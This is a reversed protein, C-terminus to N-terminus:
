RTETIEPGRAPRKRRRGGAQRGDAQQAAEAEAQQEAQREVIEEPLQLPLPDRVPMAEDGRAVVTGRVSAALVPDTDPDAAAGGSYVARLLWRPGDVGVFRMPQEGEETSVNAQLEIGLDGPVDVGTGGEGVIGELIEARVEDWIGGSRPAAFAGIQVASQGAVLQVSSVGGAQDAEMRVEVGALTPVRLGGLDIREIGDDPEDAADWPGTTVPETREADPDLGTDDLADDREDTENVRNDEAHRGRRRRGFVKV